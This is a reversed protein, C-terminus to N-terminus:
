DKTWQQNAFIALSSMGLWYLPMEKVPIWELWWEYGTVLSALWVSMCWQCSLGEKASSKPPSLRRLKRFVFAPGSEKSVLLALRYTV